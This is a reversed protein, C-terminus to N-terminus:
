ASSSWPLVARHVKLLSQLLDNFMGVFLESDNSLPGLLLGGGTIVALIVVFRLDRSVSEVVIGVEDTPEVIGLVFITPPV